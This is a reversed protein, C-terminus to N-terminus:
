LFLGSRLLLGSRFFGRHFLLRLLDRRFLLLRAGRRWSAQAPARRREPAEAPRRTRASREDRRGAAGGDAHIADTVTVTEQDGERALVGPPGGIHQDVAAELRARGALERLRGVHLRDALVDDLGGAPEHVYRDDRVLMLIVDVTERRLVEWVELDAFDPEGPGLIRLVIDGVRQALFKVVPQEAQDVGAVSQGGIGGGGDLVIEFELQALFGGSVPAELGRRGAGLIGRPRRVLDRHLEQAVAPRSVRVIKIRVALRARDRARLTRACEYEARRAVDVLDIVEIRDPILIETM